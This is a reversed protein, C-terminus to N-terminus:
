TSVKMNHSVASVNTFLKRITYVQTVSALVMVVLQGGAFL